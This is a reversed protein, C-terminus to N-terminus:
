NNKQHAFLKFFYYNKVNKFPIKSMFLGCIEYIVLVVPCFKVFKKVKSGLSDSAVFFHTILSM